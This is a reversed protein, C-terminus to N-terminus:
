MWEDETMERERENMDKFSVTINFSLFCPVRNQQGDSSAQLGDTDWTAQDYVRRARVNPAVYEWLLKDLM